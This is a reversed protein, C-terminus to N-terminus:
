EFDWILNFGQLTNTGSTTRYAIQMGTRANLTHNAITFNNKFFGQSGGGTTFRQQILTQSNTEGGRTSIEDAIDFTRVWLEINIPTVCERITLTLKNLKTVDTIIIYNSDALITGSADSPVSGTGLSVNADATLLNSTNRSWGRWTNANTLNWSNFFMRINKKTFPINGSGLLNAGNVTKINTGSVLIEQYTTAINDILYKIKGFATLLNSSSTFTGSSASLGSLLSALVRSETLFLNTTGETIDDTTAILGNTIQVYTYGSYRYEKNKQGSTIDIYIKGTEAPIVTAHSSEVYFVNSLLYGEIIDDVYSPLQSSPVKGSVLDAKLALNNDVYIKQTYDLDTINASHNHEGVLGRSTPNDSNIRVFNDFCSIFNSYTGDTWGLSAETSDLNIAGINTGDTVYLNGKDVYTSLEIDGTVPNGLETGTLPIANSVKLKNDTGLELLNPADTSILTSNDIYFRVDYMGDYNFRFILNENNPLTLDLGDKFTFPFDTIFENKFIVSNGTKNRFLFEKGVYPVEATPIFSILSLDVGALSVLSPNNLIIESYGNPNLPMIVNSGSASYTVANSFQKKVFDSENNFPLLAVDKRIARIYFGGVKLTGGGDAVFYVEAPYNLIDESGIYFGTYFIYDDTSANKRYQINFIETFESPSGIGFKIKVKMVENASSTTPILKIRIDVQDGVTLQSFDFQNTTTNWLSTIGYPPNDLNTFSGLADNTIKKDVGSVYTLTTAGSDNYDFYGIGAFLQPPKNKIYDDATDDEQLFDAQVNVQAGEEILDLKLKDANTFDNESLGKGSIKDVKGNYLETTNDNIKDFANRLVDGLGDDPSSIDIIKQM